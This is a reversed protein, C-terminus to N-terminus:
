AVLTQQIEVIQSRLMRLSALFICFPHWFIFWFFSLFFAFLAKTGRPKSGHLRFLLGHSFSKGRWHTLANLDMWCKVCAEAWVQEVISAVQCLEVQKSTIQHSNIRNATSFVSKKGTLLKTVQRWLGSALCSHFMSAISVVKGHWIFGLSMPDLHDLM